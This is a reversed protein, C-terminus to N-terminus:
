IGLLRKLDGAPAHFAINAGGYSIRARFGERDTVQIAFGLRPEPAINRVVRPVTDTMDVYEEPPVWGPHMLAYCGHCLVKRSEDCFEIDAKRLGNKLCSPNECWAM